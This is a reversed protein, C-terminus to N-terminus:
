RKEYRVIAGGNGVLYIKNEATGCVSNFSRQYRNGLDVWVFGNFHLIQHVTTAHGERSHGVAFMGMQYNGGISNIVSVGPPSIDGWDDGDYRLVVASRDAITHGVVFLDSPGTGAVDTFRVDDRRMIETWASGDYRLVVGETSFRDYGAAFANSDDTGWVGALNSVTDAREWDRGDFHWIGDNGVIHVNSRSSGWIDRLNGHSGIDIEEWTIGRFRIVAGNDGAVFVDDAGAGWVARFESNIGHSVKTWDDGVRKLITGNRGVAYAIDGRQDTWCDFLTNTTLSKHSPTWTSGNYHFLAGGSWYPVGSVWLDDDATGWIGSLKFDGLSYGTWSTGDYRAVLGDYGSAFINNESFGCINMFPYGVRTWIDTWESGDYHKLVNTGDAAYVNNRATGWMGMLVYRPTFDFSEWTNGDYFMMGDRGGAFVYDGATGWVVFFDNTSNSNMKTWEVGDFALVTGNSGVAYVTDPSSGWVGLLTETTPSEMRAWEDGDFRLITGTDGVAFVDDCAFGWLDRLHSVTGSTMETWEAGDYHLIQGFSGVCYIDTSSCGWSETIGVGPFPHEWEVLFTTSVKHPTPGSPGEGCSPGFILVIILLFIQRVVGRNM